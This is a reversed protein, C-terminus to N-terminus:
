VQDSATPFRRFYPPIFIAGLIRLLWVLWTPHQKETGVQFRGNALFREQEEPTRM